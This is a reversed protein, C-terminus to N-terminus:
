AEDPEDVPQVTREALKTSNRTKVHQSQDFPEGLEVAREIAPPLTEWNVERAEEPRFYLEKDAGFRLEGHESVFARLDKNLRKTEKQLLLRNEAALRADEETRIEGAGDRATALLPCELSAPCISCHSGPHAPFLGTEFAHDVKGVLDVLYAHHDRLDIRDRFSTREALRDDFVFRPYVVVSAFMGVDNGIMQGDDTHGYALMIDYFISQFDTEWEAQSKMALSSKYDITTMMRDGTLL